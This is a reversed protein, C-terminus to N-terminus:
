SWGVKRGGVPLAAAERMQEIEEEDLDLQGPVIYSIDGLDVGLERAIRRMLALSPQRKGREINSLYAHNVGCRTALQDQTLESLERLRKVAGGLVRRHTATPPM